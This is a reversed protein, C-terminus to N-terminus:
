YTGNEIVGLKADLAAELGEVAEAKVRIGDALFGAYSFRIEENVAIVPKSGINATRFNFAAYAASSLGAWPEIKFGNDTEEYGVYYNTGVLLNGRNVHVIYNFDADFFIVRSTDDGNDFSLGEAYIVDGQKCPILGTCGNYANTTLNGNTSWITGSRIYGTGGLVAGDKGIASALKDQFLSVRDTQFHGQLDEYLCLRKETEGNSFYPLGDNPKFWRTIPEQLITMQELNAPTDTYILSRIDESAAHYLFDDLILGRCDGVLALHQYMGGSTWLTKEGDWDWVRSGCLDVNRSRILQIGHKAYPKYVEALSYARRPQVTVSVYANKSDELSVGIECGDVIGDIRMEHTWGEHFNVSRVGYQFAGAVRLGSIVIGWMYTSTANGDASIYVATGSCDGELSYHFGREDTKCINIDYVYRGTKWMPDWRSFPPINSVSTATTSDMSIVNGNFGYPVKITAHNGRLCASMELKIVNGTTKAFSLVTGQSLRLECNAPITITSTIIYTGDPIFVTRRARFANSIALAWNSSTGYARIDGVEDRHVELVTEQSVGGLNEPYDAEVTVNKDGDIIVRRICAAKGEDIAPVEFVAKGEAFRTLPYFDAGNGLASLIVPYMGKDVAELIESASHTAATGSIGVLFIGKIGRIKDLMEEAGKEFEHFKDGVAKADAAMGEQTLSKDPELHNQFRWLMENIAAVLSERADTGLQSLDGLQAQIQEWLPIVPEAANEGSPVAGPLIVPGLARITPIAVEGGAGLGYVGVTLEKLSEELIEAPITVPNGGFVVDRTTEGNSFVVTKALGAWEPSFELMVQKGRMGTTIIEPVTMVGRAGTYQFTLM